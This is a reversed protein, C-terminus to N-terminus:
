AVPSCRGAERHGLLVWSQALLLAGMYALISNGILWERKLTSTTMM